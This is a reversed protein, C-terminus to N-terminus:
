TAYPAGLLRVLLCGTTPLSRRTRQRHRLHVEICALVSRAAMRVAGPSADEPLGPLRAFAPDLERLRHAIGAYQRRLFPLTDPPTRHVVAFGADWVLTRLLRALRKLEREETM